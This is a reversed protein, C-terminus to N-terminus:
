SILFQLRFYIFGTPISSNYYWLRLPCLPPRDAEIWYGISPPSPPRCPCPPQHVSFRSDSSSPNLYQQQQMPSPNEVFVFPCLPPKSISLRSFVGHREVRERERSKKRLSNTKKRAINISSAFFLDRAWLRAGSIHYNHPPIWFPKFYIYIYILGLHAERTKAGWTPKAEKTKQIVVYRLRGIKKKTKQKKKRIKRENDALMLSWEEM